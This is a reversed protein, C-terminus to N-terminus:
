THALPQYAHLNWVRGPLLDAMNQVEATGHFMKEFLIQLLRRLFHIRKLIHYVLTAMAILHPLSFLVTYTLVLSHPTMIHNDFWVVTMMTLLGVELVHFSVSINLYHSKYPRSYAIFVCVFSSTISFLYMTYVHWEVNHRVNLIGLPVMLLILIMPASSVPRFDITEDLGDKYCAQFAEAFTNLYIQTRPGFKFCKKIPKISYLLLFITPCFGLFFLLAIAPIAYPLHHASFREVAPDYVLVTGSVSGNVTYVDTVFLLNFSVFTLNSFSLFLITAYAHIISDSASWTRRVKAFCKRFPKWLYVVLRFDRAHLEICLWTLFILMLPYLVLVYELCVAQLNTMKQSLCVPSTFYFMSIFYWWGQSLSLSVDLVKQGFVGMTNRLSIFIGINSRTATNIYQCFMVYGLM